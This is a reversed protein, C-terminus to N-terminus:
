ETSLQFDLSFVPAKPWPVIHGSLKSDLKERKAADRALNGYIDVGSGRWPLFVFHRGWHVALSRLERPREIVMIRHEARPSAPVHASFVEIRETEPDDLQDCVPRVEPSSIYRYGLAAFAVLYATRLWAIYALRPKFGRKLTVDFRSGDFGGDAAMGGWKNRFECHSAPNNIGPPVEVRWGGSSNMVSINVNVGGMKLSAPLYTGM